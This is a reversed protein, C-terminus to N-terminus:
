TIVQRYSFGKFVRFYFRRNKFIKNIHAWVLKKNQKTRAIAQPRLKRKLTLFDVNYGFFTM